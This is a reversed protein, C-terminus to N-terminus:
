RDTSFKSAIRMLFEMLIQRICGLPLRELSFLSPSLHPVDDLVLRELSVDDPEQFAPPRRIENSSTQFSRFMSSEVLLADVLENVTQGATFLIQALIEAASVTHSPFPISACVTLLSFNGVPDVNRFPRVCHFFSSLETMPLAVINDVVLM